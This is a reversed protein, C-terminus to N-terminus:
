APPHLMAHLINLMLRAQEYLDRSGLDDEQLQEKSQSPINELVIKTDVKEIHNTLIVTHNDDYRVLLAKGHFNCTKNQLLYVTLIQDTQNQQL